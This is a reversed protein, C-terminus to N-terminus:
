KTMSVSLTGIDGVSGGIAEWALEPIKFFNTLDLSGHGGEPLPSGPNSGTVIAAVSVASEGAYRDLDNVVVPSLKATYKYTTTNSAQPLNDVPFQIQKTSGGATIAIPARYEVGDRFLQVSMGAPFNRGGPLALNATLAVPMSAPTGSIQGNTSKLTVAANIENYGVSYTTSASTSPEIDNPRGTYTASVEYENRFGPSVLDPFVYDVSAVGDTSIAGAPSAVIAGTVKDKVDFRMMAGGSRINSVLEETSTVEASLTALRASRALHTGDSLLRTSTKASYVPLGRNVVTSSLASANSSSSCFFYNTRETGWGGQEGGQVTNAAGNSDSGVSSGAGKLGVQFATGASANVPARMRLGVEPFQFNTNAGVQLGVKWRDVADGSRPDQGLYAHVGGSIRAFPGFEQYKGDAGIRDVNAAGNPASVNSGGGNSFAGLNVTGSPFAIDYSLLGAQRGDTTKMENGPQVYATFVEGPAVSEPFRVVVTESNVVTGQNKAGLLGWPKLLRCPHQVTTSQSTMGQGAAMPTAPSVIGGVLAAAILASSKRRIAM